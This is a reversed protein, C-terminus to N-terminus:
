AVQEKPLYFHFTSGKSAESHAVIFGNHNHLIKKCIALGIGTGFYKDKNHLRQFLEFIKEAYEESFGIGNDQVIFEFYEKDQQAMPHHILIGKVPHVAIHIHPSIGEHSYKISNSILNLFLQQMQFPITKMVPLEESDIVVKKEEISTSLMSIVENLIENLNVSEFKNEAATTQSFVLLDEILLQMRSSATIIKNFYDVTAHPIEGSGKELIRHAFIQIKRLPEKLDHSAVYNFSELEKNMRELEGNKSALSANLKELELTKNQLELKIQKQKTIDRLFAIFLLKGQQMSQSITLSVDFEEQQKNLMRIEMTRNLVNSLGTELFRNLEKTYSERFQPPILIENLDKGMVEKASWGFIEETKPNWLTITSNKDVVIVADPANTILHNLYEEKEKLEAHLNHEQTVDQCTGILRIQKKGKDARVEGKGKLIKLKGSGTIIRITYDSAVLTQLSKKIENVRRERDEPHIYSLWRDFTIKESQPNLDYIRYLEDSWTIQETAVDWTWNGIHTIAQAQKNLQESERLQELMQYKHTIDMVTGKVSVPQDKEFTVQGRSWIRKEKHNRKYRYECEYFGNNVRAETVAAQLSSRDDEHVSKLFSSISESAQLEFIHSIGPTYKASGKKIDWLFNGMDTLEQAELLDENKQALKKNMRKMKEKQVEIFAHFSAADSEATFRDVEEMVETVIILDTTYFTLFHRLVKRRILSFISIDEAVVEERELSTINNEIFDKAATKIYERNKNFAMAKLLDAANKKVVELLQKESLNDFLRLLPPHEEQFYQLQKKAYDSLKHELLFSAYAPLHDFFLKDEKDKM